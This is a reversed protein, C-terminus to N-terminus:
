WTDWWFRDLSEQGKPFSSQSWRQGLNQFRDLLGFSLFGFSCGLIGHFRSFHQALSFNVIMVQCFWAMSLLLVMCWCAIGHMDFCVLFDCRCYTVQLYQQQLQKIKSKSTHDKSEKRERQRRKRRQELALTSWCFELHRLTLSLSLSYHSLDLVSNVLSVCVLGVWQDKSARKDILGRNEENEM